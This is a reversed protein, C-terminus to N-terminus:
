TELESAPIPRLSAQEELALMTQPDPHGLNYVVQTWFLELNMNSSGIPTLELVCSVLNGDPDKVVLSTIYRRQSSTVIVEEEQGQTLLAERQHRECTWNAGKDCGCPQCSQDNNGSGGECCSPDFPKKLNAPM